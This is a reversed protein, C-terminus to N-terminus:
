IKGHKRTRTLKAQFCPWAICSTINDFQFSQRRIKGGRTLADIFSRVVASRRAACFEDLTYKFLVTRDQLAAMAECLMSGIEPSDNTILRCEALFFVLSNFFSEMNLYSEM